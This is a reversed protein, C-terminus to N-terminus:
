RHGGAWRSGVAERAAECARDPRQEAVQARTIAAVEVLLMGPSSAEVARTASASTSLAGLLRHGALATVDREINEYRSEGDPDLDGVFIFATGRQLNRLLRTSADYKATLTPFGSSCYVALASSRRGAGEADPDDGRERGVARREARGVRRPDLWFVETTRGGDAGQVGRRKGLVAPSTTRAAVTLSGISASAGGSRRGRMRLVM